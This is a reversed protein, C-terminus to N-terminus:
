VDPFISRFRSQHSKYLYGALFLKIIDGPIFPLIGLLFAMKINKGLFIVLWLSGLFFYILMGTFMAFLIFSLNHKDYTGLIKGIVWSAAIFGLIYGGTPGCIIGCGLGGAFIPLGMIGLIFYSTQTIASLRGGLIAAGLLVFFTQLTIPVPTFPLPIRVYAGLTTFLLFSIVGIVECWERDSIIEVKWMKDLVKSYM